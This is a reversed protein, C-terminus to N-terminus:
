NSVPKGTAAKKENETQLRQLDRWRKYQDDKAPDPDEYDQLWFRFWDVSGGQSALRVAPTTLVHEHSNLMIMDVPKHLYHLGAYPQWMLLLSDPGSAVVMLPTNIKDLNFGPSRKLWQQLGEGFPAAGILSNSDSAVLDPLLIYQLYDAMVGDTISAAKIRPSSSTLMEMVYFCTRSFGIIGIRDPDVLGDAVLRNAVAEYGSANCPGEDPTGDLCDGGDGVEGTQLVVIGAAALTRAAFATPFVGSPRFEFQEFGHTQIVLPYRQGAKYDRPMYLGAKRELGKSNKWTYISAQGLDIRKLQPNPDWIVRSAEKNTGVLLPPKDFRQEITVEFGEHEANHEGQSQGVLKWAGDAGRRYEATGRSSIDDPFHFTVMIRQKDGGAFRASHIGHYGEEHGGNKTHGKLTEVCVFTQSSVDVVAICPRSPVNTASKLFTGPLLIERGDGSWTPVASAGYVFWGASSSTPADTLARVSGAELGILVYQRVGQSGVRIQNDPDSAYAPPYLAEWSAPVESVQMETVLSQGDPSLALRGEPVIPVGNAKVAFRKGDLVAWLDKSSRDYFTRWGQNDPFLLEYLSRGTAVIGASELKKSETVSVLTYVYHRRDTIDFTKISENTSTLFEVTKKGLDALVLRKDSWDGEGELFAVGSSDHLWRWDWIIRGVKATRNVVWVPAPPQLAGPRKLLDEVDRSRYFRLSDEVLNLDLRGREAWVAFHNGDPSFHVEAPIGSPDVFLTLEIEDAVTFPKKTEQASALPSTIGSLCLFGVVVFLTVKATNM